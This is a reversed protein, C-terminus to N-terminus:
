SAADAIRLVERAAWWQTPRGRGAIRLDIPELVGVRDLQAVVLRAAETTVRHRAAVFAASVVPHEPLAELVRWILASGTPRRDRRADSEVRERLEEQLAAVDTIMRISAAAARATATAFWAVWRDTEGARYADLAARQGVRDGATVASVPPTVAAGLRHAFVWATAASAMCAPVTGRTPDGMLEAWMVAAQTVADDVTGNAYDVVEATREGGPDIAESGAGSRWRGLQEISLPESRAAELAHTVGRIMEAIQVAPGATARTAAAAAVAENTAPSGGLRAAAVCEVRLIMRAVPAHRGAVREDARQMEGAAWQTARAATAGLDLRRGVLPPPTSGRRQEGDDPMTASM